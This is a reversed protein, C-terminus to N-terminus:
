KKKTNRLKKAVVAVYPNDKHPNCEAQMTQM